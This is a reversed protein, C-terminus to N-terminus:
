CLCDYVGIRMTSSIEYARPLLPLYDHQLPLNKLLDKLLTIGQSPTVRGQREARTLAHTAEVPFYQPSGARCNSPLFRRPHASGQRYRGGAGAVQVRSLFRSRIEHTACNASQPFASKLFAMSGISRKAFAIWRKAPRKLKTRIAFERPPMQPQRVFTL